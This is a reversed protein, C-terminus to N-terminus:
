FYNSLWFVSMYLALLKSYMYESYTKNNFYEFKYVNFKINKLSYKEEEYEKNYLYFIWLKIKWTKTSKVIVNRNRSM